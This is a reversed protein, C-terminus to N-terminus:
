LHTLKDDRDNISFPKLIKEEIWVPDTVKYFIFSRRIVYDFAQWGIPDM